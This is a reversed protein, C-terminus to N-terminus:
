LCEIFKPSLRSLCNSVTNSIGNGVGIGSWIHKKFNIQVDCRLDDKSYIDTAERNITVKYFDIDDSKYFNENLCKNLGTLVKARVTPEDAQSLCNVEIVRSNEYMVLEGLVCVDAFRTGSSM